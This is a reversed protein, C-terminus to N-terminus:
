QRRTRAGQPAVSYAFVRTAHSAIRVGGAISVNRCALIDRVDEAGVESSLVVREEEAYNFLAVAQRGDALVRRLVRVRDQRDKISPGRGAADQNVSRIRISGASRRLTACLVCRANPTRGRRLM